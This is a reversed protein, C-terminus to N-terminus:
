AKYSVIFFPLEFGVVSVAVISDCGLYYELTFEMSDGISLIAGEYEITEGECTALELPVPTPEEILIEVTQNIELSTINCVDM